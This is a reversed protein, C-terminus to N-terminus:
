NLSKLNQLTSPDYQYIKGVMECKEMIECEACTQYNRSEVCKKIECQSCHIMKFGEERCGTCKIMDTFLDSVEYHVKWKETTEILLEINNTVTAIRADCTACNLGCCAILKEM